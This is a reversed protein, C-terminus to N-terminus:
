LCIPSCMFEPDAKSIFHSSTDLYTSLATKNLKTTSCKDVMCLARFEVELLSFFFVFSKKEESAKSIKSMYIKIFVFPLSDIGFSITFFKKKM